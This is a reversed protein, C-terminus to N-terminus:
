FSCHLLLDTNKFVVYILIHYLFFSIIIPNNENVSRDVCTFRLYTSRAPLSSHVMVERTSHEMGDKTLTELVQSM